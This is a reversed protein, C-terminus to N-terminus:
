RASRIGQDRISTGRAARCASGARVRVADAPDQPNVADVEVREIPGLRARAPALGLAVPADHLLRHGQTSLCERPADAGVSDGPDDVRQGLAESGEGGGDAFVLLDRRSPPTRPPPRRCPLTGSRPTESRCARGPIEMGMAPTFRSASITSSAPSLMM